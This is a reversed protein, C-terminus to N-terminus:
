TWWLTAWWTPFPLVLPATTAPLPYPVFHCRAPTKAFFPRPYPMYDPLHPLAVLRYGVRRRKCRWLLSAPISTYCAAQCTRTHHYLAADAVRRPAFLFEACTLVTWDDRLVFPMAVGMWLFSRTHSPGFASALSLIAARRRHSLRTRYRSHPLYWTGPLSHWRYVIAYPLRRLTHTVDACGASLPIATRM